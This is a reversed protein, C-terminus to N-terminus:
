RGQLREALEEESVLAPASPDAPWEVTTHLRLDRASFGISVTFLGPRRQWASGVVDWFAWARADLEFEVVRSEGPDLTVRAFARLERPPRPILSQHEGVYLQPVATGTRTGTNRVEVPVRAAGAAADLVELQLDSLEFGTYGLGHGFPYAVDRDLADYWRYGVFVGEGYRVHGREGPYTPAAPTDALRLPWTETLRGGPEAAGLLVRVLGAGGAQGGFGPLLLAAVAGRWPGLTLPAGSTLSVVVPGGSAALAAALADQDDPLDLDTRDYGECEVWDPHGLCLLVVDADAALALAEDRLGRAREDSAARPVRRGDIVPEWDYGPAYQVAEDGLEASLGALVTDVRTPVVRASGGGQLVPEAAQRGIVAIRTGPALPLTGDNALLVTGAAAARVAVEHHEGALAPPVGVTALAPGCRQALTRVRDASRRVDAEALDGTAVAARIAAVSAGDDGPMQLDLGAAVAAVPDHVAGWDSVVLGRYGWEDRLLDTLLWRHRSAHVGNLRNYACMVTWPDAERVVREFAPLYLERLTRDDVDASISHREHEQNNAAFHKLSCGVGTSQVGDVYAVALAAAVEPDESLYEFNRGCLPTRKLNVGPALLVDVGLARAEAGLAAGVERLLGTDWSQALTAPPPFCTAPLTRDGSERRLGTPGDSLRVARTGSGPDPHTLWQGDGVLLRADDPAPDATM